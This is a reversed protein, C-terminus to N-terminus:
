QLTWQGKFYNLDNHKWQNEGFSATYISIVSRYNRNVMHFCPDEDTSYEHGINKVEGCQKDGCKGFIDVGIWKQLWGIYKDRAPPPHPSSISYSLIEEGAATHLATLSLGSLLLLWRPMTSRSTRTPTTPSTPGHHRHISEFLSLVSRTKQKCNSILGVQSYVELLDMESLSEARKEIFGHRFYDIVCYKFM